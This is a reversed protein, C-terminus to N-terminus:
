HFYRDPIQIWASATTGDVYWSQPFAANLKKHSIRLSKAVKATLRFTRTDSWSARQHAIFNCAAEFQQPTMELLEHRRYDGILEARIDM